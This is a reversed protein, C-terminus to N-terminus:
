SRGRKRWRRARRRRLAEQYAALERAAEAQDWWDAQLGFEVSLACRSLNPDLRSRGSICKSDGGCFRRSRCVGDGKVAAVFAEGFDPKLSIAKELLAQAARSDGEDRSQKGRKVLSIAYYYNAVANAPQERAFEALKEEACALPGAVTKEMQGLYLYAATDGPKLDAAKCLSRAADEYSRVAYQAAGLGALMRASQPHLSVGKGFVEVAPQAAKHLLLEAGWDFYNQESAYMRAAREYERVAGLPDKAREDIDGLLHHGEADDGGALIKQTLERAAAFDGKAEAAIALQYRKMAADNADAIKAADASKLGATERALADSTRATTDSGHLGLNSRDTIGAVTFNPEDSFEIGNVDAATNKNGSTSVGSKGADTQSSGPAQGSNEMVLDVHKTEGAALRIPESQDGSWGAKEARVVYTGARESTLKFTGDDKTVVQALVAHKEDELFVMVGAEPEGGANRVSGHVTVTKAPANQNWGLDMRPMAAADANM